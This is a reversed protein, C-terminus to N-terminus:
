PMPVAVTKQYFIDTATGPAYVTTNKFYCTTTGAPFNNFNFGGCNKDADCLTKCEAPTKGEIQSIMLPPTTGSVGQNVNQGAAATVVNYGISVPCAPCPAVVPPLIPCIPCEKQPPCTPKKTFYLVMFIVSIIIFLVAIAWGWPFGSKAVAVEGGSSNLPPYVPVAFTAM